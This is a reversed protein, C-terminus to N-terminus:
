AHDPSLNEWRFVSNSEDYILGDSIVTMAQTGDATFRGRLVYPVQRGDIYITAPM